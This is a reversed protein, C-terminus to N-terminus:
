NQRAVKFSYASRESVIVMESFSAFDYAATYSYALAFAAFIFMTGAQAFILYIYGARRTTEKQYEYMVLFFSSLSMLEWALAFSIINDATAVLAM